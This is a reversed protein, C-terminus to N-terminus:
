NPTNPSVPSVGIHPSVPSAASVTKKGTPEAAAKGSPKKSAKPTTQANPEASPSAVASPQARGGETMRAARARNAAEADIVVSGRHLDEDLPTSGYVTAVPALAFAVAGGAVM